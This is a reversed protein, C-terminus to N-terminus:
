PEGIVTFSLSSWSWARVYDVRLRSPSPTDTIPWGGGLALDLLIMLKHRHEPPTAVRWKEVRDLYVVIWDPAVSIGYTHFDEGLSHTPVQITQTTV